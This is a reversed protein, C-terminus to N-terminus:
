LIVPMVPRKERIELLTLEAVVGTGDELPDLEEAAEDPECLEEAEEPLWLALELADTPDLALEEWM